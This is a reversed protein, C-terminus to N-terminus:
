LSVALGLTWMNSTTDLDDGFQNSVGASHLTWDLFVAGGALGLDLGYELGAGLAIGNGKFGRGTTSDPRLWTREVGFRGFGELKSVLPRSYRGYVGLGLADYNGANGFEFGYGGIGAELGLRGFRQGISLRASRGTSEYGSLDGGLSASSGVGLSLYGGEAAALRPAALSGLLAVTLVVKNM